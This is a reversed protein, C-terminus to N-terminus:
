PQLSARRPPAGSSRVSVKSAKSIAGQCRSTESVRARYTYTTFPHLKLEFTGNAKTIAVDFTQFFKVKPKRRQLAVKQRVQCAGKRRTARVSGRLRVLMGQKSLRKRSVTLRLSRPALRAVPRPTAGGVPGAVAGGGGAPPVPRCADIGPGNAGASRMVYVAGEDPSLGDFRPASVALDLFGDGNLDGMPVVASGFGSGAQASPDPLTQLLARRCANFIRVDGLADGGPDGVAIEAAADSVVNGLGAYSAGFGGSGTPSPDDLTWLLSAVSVNGDFVYGAGPGSAGPELAPASLFVDPALDGAMDGAPAGSVLSGFGGSAHAAPPRVVRIAAGRRGDFVFAAGADQAGTDDGPAAILLEGAGDPQANPANPPAPNLCRADTAPFDDPVDCKGVDGLAALWRGFHPPDGTGYDGFWRIRQVPADLIPGPTAAIDEGRFLFVRGSERCVAPEEVPCHLPNSEINENYGPASIVIDPDGGGDLDGLAVPSHPTYGCAGIGGHGVCPPLGAPVVLSRGFDPPVPPENPDQPPLDVTALQIKKMVQRTAGDLVYVIGVDVATSDLDAGPASVVFEPAGDRPGVTCSSPICSGVDGLTAVQAGFQAPAGTHTAELPAITPGGPIMSGDRGSVWFVEGTVSSVDASIDPAGVILDDVGDGDRDGANAM